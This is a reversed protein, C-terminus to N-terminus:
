IIDDNPRRYLGAARPHQVGSGGTRHMTLETHNVNFGKGNDSVTVRMMGGEREIRVSM